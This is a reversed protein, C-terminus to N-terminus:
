ATKDGFIIKIIDLSMGLINKHEIICNDIENIIKSFHLLFCDSDNIRNM